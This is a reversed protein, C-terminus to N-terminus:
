CEGKSSLGYSCAFPDRWKYDRYFLDVTDGTDWYLTGNGSSTIKWKGRTNDTFEISGKAYCPSYRDHLGMKAPVPYSKAFFQRVDYRTPKFVRCENVEREGDDDSKGTEVIQIKAIARPKVRKDRLTAAQSFSFAVTAVLLILPKKAM